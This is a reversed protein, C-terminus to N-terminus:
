SDSVRLYKRLFFDHASYIMILLNDAKLSRNIKKIVQKAKSFLKSALLFMFQLLKM